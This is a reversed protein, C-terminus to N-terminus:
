LFLFISVAKIGKSVELGVLFGDYKGSSTPARRQRM